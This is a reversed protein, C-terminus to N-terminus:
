KVFCTVLYPVASHELVMWVSRIMVTEVDFDIVYRQGFHDKRGIVAEGHQAAKLLLSRVLQADDQTWGLAAIFVRAKHRGVPHQLNLCYDQLKELSVVAADGFPLKVLFCYCLTLLFLVAGFEM